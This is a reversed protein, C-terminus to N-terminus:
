NYEETKTASISSYDVRRVVEEFFRCLLDGSEARSDVKMLVVLSNDNEDYSILELNKEFVNGPTQLLQLANHFANKDSYKLRPKQIITAM